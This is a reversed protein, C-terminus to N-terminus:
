PKKTFKKIKKIAVDVEHQIDSDSLFKDISQILMEDGGYNSPYGCAKELHRRNRIIDQTASLLILATREQHIEM